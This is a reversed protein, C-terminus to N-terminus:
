FLGTILLNYGKIREGGGPLFPNKEEHFSGPSICHEDPSPLHHPGLLNRLSNTLTLSIENEGQKLFESIDAEYPAKTFSKVEKGNVSLAVSSLGTKKCSFLLDTDKVTVTKKLTISGSFFPFGQKELNSLSVSDPLATIKFGGETRTIKETLDSFGDASVGFPGVLYLSELETDYKLSNTETEFLKTREIKAYVEDSQRLCATLSISNEGEKILDSIDFLKVCRDFFSGSPAKELPSSNVTLVFKEPTEIGLYLEPPLKEVFFKFTCETKEDKHMVASTFVNLVYEEHGCVTCTDLTLANDTMKEIQWSGSLDLAKQPRKKAPLEERESDEIIAASGYPPLTLNGDFPSLAGTELDLLKNGTSVACVREEPTSNVFYRFTFNDFLRRTYTVKPDSIIGSDAMSDSSKLVTGGQEAFAKLLRKTEPLPNEGFPVLVTSYSCEGIKLKGDSVAGHEAMIIEDGLDFLIHKRELDYMIHTFAEQIKYVDGYNDPTFSAWCSTMPHIVLTDFETRGESLLAGLRGATDCFASFHEWWPQQPGIAPPYDRKRLGRMSYPSLHLCLLTAGRVAQWSFVASLDDFDAAHGCAAFSETLVAKKGFQHAVSAVQYPAIIEAKPEKKLTLMDIGPIDFHVYSPMVAGNSIMQLRLDEELLLHGTFKKKHKECFKHILGAYNESFLAAILRWYKIRVAKAGERDEFLCPLLPSIDTGYAKKWEDPLTDSWPIGSMRALQPEDTFFGEIDPTKDIYTQYSFEIFKKTVRPDLLDSYLPNIDAYYTFGDIETIKRGDAKGNTRCLSKLMYAEGLSPVRGDAFGSPWGNEDYAFPAMSRAKGEAVACDINEFWEESMYPTELGGRAHLFFGGIHSSDMEGILRRTEDGTLYDNLSWFPIPLYKKDVSSFDKNKIDM